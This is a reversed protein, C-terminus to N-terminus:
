GVAFVPRVGRSASADHCDARGYGDVFAFYAASVVDRLWQNHSRNVIYKPCVNFLALQQKNMTHRVTGNEAPTFVYSGYMMVENPLEVSSNYWTGASPRGSAVANTLYERHSLVASGFATNVITKADILNSTYMKSGVYGGTTVNTENMQANYLAEDPMIVLHHKTFASDGCNYWYDIDVIRWTHGGIVWYDGLWLDDFTGDQIRAKQAATLATGLNKGRYITRHMEPATYNGLNSYLSLFVCFFLRHDANM